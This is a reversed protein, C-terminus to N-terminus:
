LTCIVIVFHLDMCPLIHLYSSPCVAVYPLCLIPTGAKGRYDSLNVLPALDLTLDPGPITGVIALPPQAAKPAPSAQGQPNVVSSVIYAPSLNNPQALMAQPFYQSIRQVADPTPVTGLTANGQVLFVLTHELAQLVSIWSDNCRQSHMHWRFKFPFQHNQHLHCSLTTLM